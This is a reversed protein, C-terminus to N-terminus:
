ILSPRIFSLHQHYSIECDGRWFIAIIPSFGGIDAFYKKELQVQSLSESYTLDLLPDFNPPFIM